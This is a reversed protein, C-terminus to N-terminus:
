KINANLIRRRMRRRMSAAHRVLLLREVQEQVVNIVISVHHFPNRVGPSKAAFTHSLSWDSQEICLNPVVSHSDLPVPFTVKGDRKRARYTGDRNIKVLKKQCLGDYILVVKPEPKQKKPM